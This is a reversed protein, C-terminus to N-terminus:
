LTYWSVWCVKFLTIQLDKKTSNTSVWQAGSADGLADRNSLSRRFAHNGGKCTKHSKVHLMGPSFPRLLGGQEKSFDVASIGMCGNM